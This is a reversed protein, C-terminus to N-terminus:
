LSVADPARNSSEFHCPAFRVAPMRVAVSQDEVLMALKGVELGAHTVQPGICDLANSKGLSVLMCQDNSIGAVDLFVQGLHCALTVAPPWFILQYFGVRLFGAPRAESRVVEESRVEFRGIFPHEGQEGLESFTEM